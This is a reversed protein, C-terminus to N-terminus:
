IYGNMLMFCIAIFILIFSIFARDDTKKIGDLQIAGAIALIIYTSIVFIKRIIEGNSM